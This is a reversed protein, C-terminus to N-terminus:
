PTEGVLRDVLGAFAQIGSAKARIRRTQGSGTIVFGDLKSLQATFNAPDYCKLRVVEGRVVELSTDNEGLGFGRVITLVQAIARAKEANNKGLKMGPITIRPGDDDMHVLREIKDRQVGTQAAVQDYMYDESVQPTPDAVEGSSTSRTERGTRPTPAAAGSPPPVLVRMAERFAVEHLHDPIAAATVAEYAKRLTESLQDM